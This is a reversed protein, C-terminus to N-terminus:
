RAEPLGPFGGFAGPLLPPLNRAEMDQGRLVCDSLTKACDTYAAAANIVYPCLGAGFRHRCRTANLTDMPRKVDNLGALVLQFTAVDGVTVTSVRWAFTLKDAANLSGKHVLYSTAPQGVFGSGSELYTSLFRTSNDLSLTMRPLDGDSTLQIESHEMPYARWTKANWAVDADYEALRIVTTASTTRGVRLEWLWLFTGSGHIRKIETLFDAPLSIM